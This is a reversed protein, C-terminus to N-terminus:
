NSKIKVTGVIKDNLQYSWYMWYDKADIFPDNITEWALFPAALIHAGVIELPHQWHYYNSAYIQLWCKFECCCPNNNRRNVECYSRTGITYTNIAGGYWEGNNWVGLANVGGHVPNNLYFSKKSEKCARKAEHKWLPFVNEILADIKGITEKHIKQVFPGNTDFVIPTGNGVAWHHFAASASLNQVLNNRSKGWIDVMVGAQLYVNDKCEPTAALGTPDLRNIPNSGEIEFPNMGDPYDIPDHQIFRALTPHRDRVSNRILGFERDHLLGQHGVDCLGMPNEATAGGSELLPCMVLPDATGSSTFVTRQGYPTYEYREKLNGDDGVIGLVNYNADQLAWHFSDCNGENVDTPDDNRGIQVLEDVYQLGWVHQQLAFGSGNRTEVM